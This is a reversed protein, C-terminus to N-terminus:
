KIVLQEIGYVISTMCGVTLLLSGVFIPDEIFIMVLGLLALIGLPIGGILIWIMM